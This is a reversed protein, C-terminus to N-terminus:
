WKNIIKVIVAHKEFEINILTIRLFYDQEIYFIVVVDEFILILKLAIVRLM